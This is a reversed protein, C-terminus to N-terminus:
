GPCTPRRTRSRTFRLAGGVRARREPLPRGARRGGALYLDPRGDDDCDLVAVGGGTFATVDGDYVHDIGSTATEDVFRPAGLAATPTAGGGRGLVLVAAGGLVLAGLAIGAVRVVRRSM